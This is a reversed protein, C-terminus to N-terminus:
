TQAPLRVGWSTSRKHVTFGAREYLGLAGTDNAADVGLYVEQHGAGAWGALGTAMLVSGVGRGRFDPLTGLQGIYVERKGKAAVDAEYM